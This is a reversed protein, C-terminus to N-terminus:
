SLDVIEVEKSAVGFATHIPTPNGSASGGLAPRSSKSSQDFKGGKAFDSLSPPSPTEHTVRRQQAAASAAFQFRDSWSRQITDGHLRVLNANRRTPEIDYNVLGYSYQDLPPEEHEPTGVSNMMIGWYRTHNVLHKVGNEGPHKKAPKKFPGSVPDKVRTGAQQCAHEILRKLPEENIQWEFEGQSNQTRTTLAGFQEYHAFWQKFYHHVPVGAIQDLYDNGAGVAAVVSLSTVREEEPIGPFRDCIQRYLQSVHVWIQGQPIGKRREGSARAVDEAKQDKKKLREIDPFPNASVCWSLMPWRRILIQPAHSQHAAIFRLSNWVMDSDPSMIACTDDQNALNKMLWLIALDAEGHRHAMHPFFEIMVEGDSSRSVSLPADPFVRLGLHDLDGERLYHGDFIIRRGSGATLFDPTCDTLVRIVLWRVLVPIGNDRDEVAAAMDSTEITSELEGPTFGVLPPREMGGNRKLKEADRDTQEVLKAMYGYKYFDNSKVVTKLKPFKRFSHKTENLFGNVADKWKVVAPGALSKVQAIQDEFSITVDQCEPFVEGNPTFCDGFYEKLQKIADPKPM